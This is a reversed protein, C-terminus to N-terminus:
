PMTMGSSFESRTSSARRSPSTSVITAFLAFILKLNVPVLAAIAASAAQRVSFRVLSFTSAEVAM